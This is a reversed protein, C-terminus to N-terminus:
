YPGSEPSDKRPVDHGAALCPRSQPRPSLRLFATRRNQLGGNALKSPFAHGASAGVGDGLGGLDVLSQEIVVEAILICKVGGGQLLDEFLAVGVEHGDEPLVSRRALLKQTIHSRKEIKEDVMGLVAFHHLTFHEHQRPTDLSLM